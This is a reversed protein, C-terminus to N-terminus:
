TTPLLSTADNVYHIPQNIVNDVSGKRSAKPHLKSSAKQERADHNSVNKTVLSKSIKLSPIM